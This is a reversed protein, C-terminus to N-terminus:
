YIQVIAAVYNHDRSRNFPTDGPVALVCAGARFRVRVFAVFVIGGVLGVVLKEGDWFVFGCGDLRFAADEEGEGVELKVADFEEFEDREGQRDFALAAFVGGVDLIEAGLGGGTGASRAQFRAFLAGAGEGDGVAAFEQM